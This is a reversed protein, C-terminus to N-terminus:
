NKSFEDAAAGTKNDMETQIPLFFLAPKKIFYKFIESNIEGFDAADIERSRMALIM